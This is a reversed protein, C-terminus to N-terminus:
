FSFPSRGFDRQHSLFLKLQILRFSLSAMEVTEESLQTTKIETTFCCGTEEIGNSGAGPHLAWIIWECSNLDTRSNMKM